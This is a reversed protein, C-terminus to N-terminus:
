DFLYHFFWKFIFGVKEKVQLYFYELLIKRNCTFQNAIIMCFIVNINVCFSSNVYSWYFSLCTQLQVKKGTVCRRKHSNLIFHRTLCRKCFHSMRDIFMSFYKRIMKRWNLLFFNKMFQTLWICEQIMTSM